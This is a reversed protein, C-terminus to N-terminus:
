KHCFMDSESVVSADVLENETDSAFCEKVLSSFFCLVSNMRRVRMKAPTDTQRKELESSESSGGALVFGVADIM